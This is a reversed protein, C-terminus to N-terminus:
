RRVAVASYPTDPTPPTTFRANPLYLRNGFAAVTTPIDFRPDTITKVLEGRLGRKDLEFVAVLNLQNRVVYLTRGLVLLGDGASVSEGGLDVTTAVGTDPDVRFLKGTNSQVILLARRDPTQAIGNANFGAEHVYDGSLPLTQIESQEPLEGHRLPVKYLVPQQSDTFWAADRTLVVDNVFTATQTTFQYSALINGTRLDVVRGTGAPGGAVFLRSRGDSKLGISPTGPGQSFVTGKGTRLDVRYVDGDARSGFYATPGPGIAIGEPLFGNPLAFQTPFPQHSPSSANATAPVTLGLAVLAVLPILRRFM